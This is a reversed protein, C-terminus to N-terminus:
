SLPFVPTVAGGEVLTTWEKKKAPDWLLIEGDEDAGALLRGDPTATISRIRADAKLGSSTIQTGDTVDWATLERNQKTDKTLVLLTHADQWALDVVESGQDTADLTHWGGIRENERDIAGVAVQQGLDDSVVAAVRVGDRAIKLAGVDAKELEPASVQRQPGGNSRWVRSRQPGASEVAWVDGYRDWSPATLGGGRIWRQWQGGEALPAVWVGDGGLAAVKKHLEGSIAPRTLGRPKGGAVGPVAPNDDTWTLRHLRGDQMFYAEPQKPLVSPDFAGYEEPEVRLGGGPWPEGNVLVEIDRGSALGRLTWALQAEMARQLTQSTRVALIESTFDVVLTGHDAVTVRNLRTGTPFANRVAGRLASTPGRLLREVLSDTLSKRPNVPLQVRDVVLGSLQQDPYYLDLPRYIRLFDDKSLLLGPPASSIRWGVDTKVLVFPKNGLGGGGPRYRGDDDITAVVTADLALQTVDPDETASVIRVQKEQDYVTVGAWPNWTRLADGTLYLRAVARSDDDSAMAAQFGKLIEIPQGGQKPASAIKRYYPRSLSDGSGAEKGPVPNGGMPVLSCASQILALAVLLAALPAARGRRRRPAPTRVDTPM